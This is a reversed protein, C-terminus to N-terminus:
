LLIIHGHIKKSCSCGLQCRPCQATCETGGESLQLKDGVLEFACGGTLLSPWFKCFHSIEFHLWFIHNYGLVGQTPDRVHFFHRKMSQDNTCM